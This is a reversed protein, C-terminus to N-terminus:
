SKKQTHIRRYYPADRIIDIASPKSKPAHYRDNKRQNDQCNKQKAHSPKFLFVGRQILCQIAYNQTKM